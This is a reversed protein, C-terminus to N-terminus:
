GRVLAEASEEAGVGAEAFATVFRDLANQFQQKAWVDSADCLNIRRTTPELAGVGPVFSECCAEAEELGRTRFTIMVYGNETLAFKYLRTGTECDPTSVGFGSGTAFEDFECFVPELHETAFHEFRHLWQKKATELKQLFGRQWDNM